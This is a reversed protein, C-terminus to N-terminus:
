HEIIDGCVEYIEFSFIMDSVSKHVDQQQYLHIVAVHHNTMHAIQIQDFVIMEVNHQWLLMLSLQFTM